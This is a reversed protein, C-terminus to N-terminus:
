RFEARCSRWHRQESSQSSKKAVLQALRKELWTDLEGGDSLNCIKEVRALRMTLSCMHGEFNALKGEFDVLHSQVFEVHDSLTKLHQEGNM